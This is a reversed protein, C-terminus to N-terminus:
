VGSEKRWAVTQRRVSRSLLFTLDRRSRTLVGCGRDIALRLSSALGM